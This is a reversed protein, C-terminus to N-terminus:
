FELIEKEKDSYISDVKEIYQNTIKQVDDQGKYFQDESIEKNKKLGKLDENADRRASRLSVRYEEAVRKVLKILEKRREETLAPISVRIIKGDNVPTLGLESKLIAREIEPLAKMDWAQITILRSEPVSITALQNIPTPAGYYDVKIGELLAPSARGTRIKSLDRNLVKLSKEMKAKLEEYVKDIM